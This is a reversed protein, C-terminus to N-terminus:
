NATALHRLPDYAVSKLHDRSTRKQGSLTLSNPQTLLARVRIETFLTKHVARLKRCYQLLFSEKVQYCKALM